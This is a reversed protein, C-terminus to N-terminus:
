RGLIYTATVETTPVKDVVNLFQETSYPVARGFADCKSATIKMPPSYEDKTEPRDPDSEEYRSLACRISEGNPTTWRYSLSCGDKLKGVLFTLNIHGQDNEGLTEAYSTNSYKAPNFLTPVSNSVAIILCPDSENEDLVSEFDVYARRDSGEPVGAYQTANTLLEVLAWQTAFTDIGCRSSDQCIREIVEEIQAKTRAAAESNETVTELRTYKESFPYDFGIRNVSIKGVHHSTLRGSDLSKVNEQSPSTM